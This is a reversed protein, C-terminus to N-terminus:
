VHEGPVGSVWVCVFYDSMGSVYIFSTWAVSSAKLGWFLVDLVEFIFNRLKKRNKNTM